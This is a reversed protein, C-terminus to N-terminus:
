TGNRTPTSSVDLGASRAADTAKSLAKDSVKLDFESITTPNWCDGSFSEVRTPTLIARDAFDDCHGFTRIEIYERQYEDFERWDGEDEGWQNPDWFVTPEGADDCASIPIGFILEASAALGM